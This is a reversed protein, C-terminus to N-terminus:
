ATLLDIIDRKWKLQQVPVGGNSKGVDLLVGYSKGKEIMHWVKGVKYQYGLEQLIRNASIASSVGILPAIETPTLIRDKDDSELQVDLLKLPSSGTLKFTAKDASLLAQNGTLGFMAAMSIMAEAADSIQKAPSQQPIATSQELEQWRKMILHRMKVNYGSILTLSHEKDLHYESVYGRNDIIASIGKIEIDDMKPNDIEYLGKLIQEQIDRHVHGKEKGTLKAIETSSMTKVISNQLQLM